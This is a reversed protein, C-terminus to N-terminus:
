LLNQPLDPQPTVPVNGRIKQTLPLLSTEADRSKQGLVALDEDAVLRSIRLVPSIRDRDHLVQAALHSLPVGRHNLSEFLMYADKNTDVEIGVLVAQEFKSKISFLASIDDANPNEKKIDEM